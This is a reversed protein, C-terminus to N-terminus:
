SASSQPVSSRELRRKATIVADPDAYVWDGPCFTAGGITLPVHRAGGLSHAPRRATTGLAKIGFNLEGLAQSDRVAGYLVIGAWGNRLALGAMRDGIVACRLSAGADVVLIRGEGQEQFADRIPQADEYTKVTACPGAFSRIRGFDRFQADCVAVETAHADYLDSTTFSM